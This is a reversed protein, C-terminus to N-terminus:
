AGGQRIKIASGKFPPRPISHMPPSAMSSCSTRPYRGILEQLFSDYVDLAKRKEDLWSYRDYVGEVGPIVHNLVRERVHPHVGLRVLNTSATRRLDHVVFDGVGCLDDLKAKNKSWASFAKDPANPAGFVLSHDTQPAAQLVSMALKSLPTVYERKSKNHANLLWKQADLELDDRRMRAVESRRQGTVLLLRIMDGYPFGMKLAAFWIARLEEDTLVRDRQNKPAPSSLPRTFDHDIRGQSECWSFFTKIYSLAHNAASPSEEKEIGASRHPRDLIGYVVNTIDSKSIESIDRKGFISGFEKRLVREVERRVGAIAYPLGYIPSRLV